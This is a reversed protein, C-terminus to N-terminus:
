NCGCGGGATGNGGYAGERTANVHQDASRSLRDDDVRMIRDALHVRQHPRVLPPRLRACGGVVALVLAALLPLTMRKCTMMKM